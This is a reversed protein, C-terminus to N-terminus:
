LFGVFGQGLVCGLCFLGPEANFRLSIGPLSCGHEKSDTKGQLLGRWFGRKHKIGDLYYQVAWYTYKGVTEKYILGDGYM